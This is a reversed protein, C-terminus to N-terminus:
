HGRESHEVMPVFAVALINRTHIEGAEDKNVLMLQQTSHPQGVPIVLRGGPNLQQILAEPIYPAAATVIIGDYPAHEPWGNYGNGYTVQVNHYGMQSLKDQARTSLEPVIELSYVTHCLLSLVAAQYGSGSGIELVRHEAQPALLDTMLAVIYPQSITQGYGIPLPGNSFAEQQMDGPVFADRPVRAMADMVRDDLAEKGIMRRTYRVEQEIEDLMQQMGQKHRSKMM